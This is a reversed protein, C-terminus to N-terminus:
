FLIVKEDKKFYLQMIVAGIEIIYNLLKSMCIFWSVMVLIFIAYVDFECVERSVKAIGKQGKEESVGQAVM